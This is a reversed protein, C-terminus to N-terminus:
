LGPHLSFLLSLSLSLTVTNADSYPMVAVLHVSFLLIPCRNRDVLFGLFIIPRNELSVALGTNDM